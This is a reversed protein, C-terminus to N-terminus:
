NIAMRKCDGDIQMQEGVLQKLARSLTKEHHSSAKQKLAGLILQDGSHWM